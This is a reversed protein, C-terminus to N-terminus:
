KSFIQKLGGDDHNFTGEMFVKGSGRLATKRMRELSNIQAKAKALEKELREFYCLYAQRDEPYAEALMAIDCMAQEIDEISVEDDNKFQRVTYNQSYCMSGNNVSAKGLAKRLATQVCFEQDM